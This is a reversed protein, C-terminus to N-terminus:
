SRMNRCAHSKSILIQKEECLFVINIEVLLVNKCILSQFVKFRPHDQLKNQGTSHPLLPTTSRRAFGRGDFSGLSAGKFIVSMQFPLCLWYNGDPALCTLTAMTSQQHWHLRWFVVVAHTNGPFVLLPVAWSLAPGFKQGM